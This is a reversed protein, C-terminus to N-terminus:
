NQDVNERGTLLAVGMQGLATTAALMETDKDPDREIHADLTQGHFIQILLQILVDNMPLTAITDPFLTRALEINEQQNRLFIPRFAQCLAEDTRAAQQVEFWAIQEPSRTVSRLASLAIVMEDQHTKRERAVRERYTTMFRQAVCDMAHIVLDQRHAFHRFIAGQSMGAKQAIAATTTGAYGLEVLCDITAQALRAITEERRQAQTRRATGAANDHTM